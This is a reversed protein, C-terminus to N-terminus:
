SRSVPRIIKKLFNFWPAQIVREYIVTVTDSSTKVGECFSPESHRDLNILNGGEFDKPDPRSKQTKAKSSEEWKIIVYGENIQIFQSEWCIEMISNILKKSM